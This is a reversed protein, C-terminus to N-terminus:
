YDWKVGEKIIYMHKGNGGVICNEQSINKTITSNASIITNSAINVGKLITNRCCIWVHDGVNIAKPPNIVEGSSDIIKHFDTDMILINWSLLCNDGFSIENQCIIETRGTIIFDKGLTLNANNSVSIKCGRGISANGKFTLNGNLEWITRSFLMDQTGLGHPGIKIMGTSIPSDIFLNGKIKYLKTRWYIFIPMRIATKPPLYYFNFFITKWPNVKTSLKFFSKILM